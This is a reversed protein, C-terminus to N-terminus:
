QGDFLDNRLEEGKVIVRFNKKMAPVSSLQERKNSITTGNM